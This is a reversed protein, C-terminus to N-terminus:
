ECVMIACSLLFLPTLYNRSCLEFGDTTQEFHLNFVSVFFIVFPDNCKIFVVKLVLYMYM